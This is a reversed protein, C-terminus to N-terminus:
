QSGGKRAGDAVPGARGIELLLERQRETLDDPLVLRVVLHFDGYGGRGDSMGQGRLRLRSGARTNPPIKAAAVARPTRVEVTTGTLADWPAVSVDAEVDDGRLRYKDDSELRLTLYLDGPAGGQDGSEGLGRLRLVAGDRVDEPIALEVVKKAHVKGVGVCTPCVHEGVFGVGGCRGCSATTPVEFTSKDRAVVDALRLRLEARVDAGRHRYRAHRGATGRFDGRFQDGFMQSFFESFGGPGGFAQEFEERSTTQQGPPATFEQGHEWDAGFRDFRERKEPDSLVENAESIRKFTEEVGARDAEPHRDPHWKLALKRYAKKIEDASATRAVGLVEYYDQFKV